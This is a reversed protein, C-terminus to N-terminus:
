KNLTRDSDKSKVSGKSSRRSSNNSSEVITSLSSESDTSKINGSAVEKSQELNYKTKKGFFKSFLGKKQPKEDTTINSMDGLKSQIRARKLERQITDKITPYGKPIKADLEDGRTIKRWHSYDQIDRKLRSVLDKSSEGLKNLLKIEKLAKEALELIEEKESVDKEDMKELKIENKMFEVFQEPTKEGLETDLEMKEFEVENMDKEM